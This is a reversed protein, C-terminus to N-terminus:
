EVTLKFYSGTCGCEVEGRRCLQFCLAWIAIVMGVKVPWRCWGASSSGREVVKPDHFETPKSPAAVAPPATAAAAPRGDVLKKVLTGTGPKCAVSPDDVKGLLTMKLPQM